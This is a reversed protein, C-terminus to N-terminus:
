KGQGQSRAAGKDIWNRITQIHEEPLAVRGRPMRAGVSQRGELKIVLYSNEADEPIVRTKDTESTSQVGVLQSYAEGPSLDLGAMGSHDHCGAMVCSRSFIPQIDKVFDPNEKITLDQAQRCVLASLLFGALFLLRRGGRNKEGNDPRM